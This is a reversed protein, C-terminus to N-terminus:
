RSRPSSCNAWPSMKSFCAATRKSLSRASSKKRRAFSADMEQHKAIVNQEYELRHMPKVIDFTDSPRAKDWVSKFNKLYEPEYTRLFWADMADRRTDFFAHALAEHKAQADAINRHLITNVQLAERPIRVCGCAFVSLTCIFGIRKV